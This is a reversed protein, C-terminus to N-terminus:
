EVPLQYVYGHDDDSMSAAEADTLWFGRYVRVRKVTAWQGMCLMQDGPRLDIERVKPPHPRGNDTPGTARGDRGLPIVLAKGGTKDGPEAEMDVYLSYIVRHTANPPRQSQFEDNHLSVSDDM